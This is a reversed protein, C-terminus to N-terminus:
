FNNKVYHTAIVIAMKIGNEQDQRIGENGVRDGVEVNGNCIGKLGLM